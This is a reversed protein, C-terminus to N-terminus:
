TRIPAHAGKEKSQAMLCRTEEVFTEDLGTSSEFLQILLRAFRAISAGDVIDHDAAGALCLIKRTVIKGDKDLKLRETISGIAITMTHVTPTLAFAPHVFGHSQINTVLITGHSRKFWFPDRKSKWSILRRLLAPYAAFKRRLQVAGDAALDKARVACRLDWNIQALSQTQAARVMHGVPIRVGSPLTKEIPSLVDIDDFTVLQHGKRYTHVIPHRIAAQICCYLAFAHFSVAIRLEKQLSRIAALADTVDVESFGQITHPRRQQFFSILANRIVPWPALRARPETKM